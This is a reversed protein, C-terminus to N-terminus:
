SICESFKANNINTIGGESVDSFMGGGNQDADCKDILMQSEAPTIFNM